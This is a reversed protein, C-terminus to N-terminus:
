NLWEKAYGGIPISAFYDGFRGDYRGYLKGHWGPRQVRQQSIRRLQRRDCDLVSSDSFPFVEWYKTSKDTGGLIKEVQEPSTSYIYVDRSRGTRTSGHLYRAWSTALLGLFLLTGLNTGAMNM